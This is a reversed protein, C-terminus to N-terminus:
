EGKRRYVEYLVLACSVSANLSNIHGSMPVKVIYDCNDRVLRSLGRGENGIIICLDAEVDMEHITQPTDMDTGVIWFGNEKLKRITQSLNVVQIVNVHEIAGTSVKAVTANLQVSRNKPIIVGDVNFADCSRLMAGLNHPDEVGDLMLYLRHKKPQALADELSLYAYDQVSAGIGQHGKPLLNNIEQKQLEKVPINHTKALELIEDNTGPQVYLEFIKRGVTIAEKITNKGTIITAVIIV